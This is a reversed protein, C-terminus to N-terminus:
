PTCAEDLGTGVGRTVHLRFLRHRALEAAIGRLTTSRAPGCAGAHLVLAAGTSVPVTWLRSSRDRLYYAHCLAGRQDPVGDRACERAAATGSFFQVVDVTLSSRDPDAREVLVYYSGAGGNITEVAAPSPRSSAPASPAAPLTSHTCGTLGVAVLAAVM